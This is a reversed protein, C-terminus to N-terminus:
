RPATLWEHWHDIWTAREEILTPAHPDTRLAQRLRDDLRHWEELTEEDVLVSKLKLVLLSYDEAPATRCFAFAVTLARSPSIAFMFAERKQSGYLIPFTAGSSLYETQLDAVQDPVTAMAGHCYAAEFRNKTFGQQM